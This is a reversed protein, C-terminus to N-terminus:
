PKVFVPLEAILAEITPMPELGALVRSMRAFAQVNCDDMWQAFAIAEAQYPGFYGARLAFTFRNDYRHQRAVSNLHADLAAEYTKIVYEISNSQLPLPAELLSGESLLLDFRIEFQAETLEFAGVPLETRADDNHASEVRGEQNFFAYRM